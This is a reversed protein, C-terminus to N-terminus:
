DEFLSGEIDDYEVLDDYDEDAIDWTNPESPLVTSVLPSSDHPTKIFQEYYESEFHQELESMRNLQKSYDGLMTVLVQNEERQAELAYQTAQLQLQIKLASLEGRVSALAYKLDMIQEYDDQQESVLNDRIGELYAIREKLQNNEDLLQSKKVQPM